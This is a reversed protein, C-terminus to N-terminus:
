CDHVRSTNLTTSFANFVGPTAKHPVGEAKALFRSFKGLLACHDEYDTGAVKESESNWKKCQLDFAFENILTVPNSTFDLLGDNSTTATLNTSTSAAHNAM